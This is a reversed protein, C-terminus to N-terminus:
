PGGAGPAPTGAPPRCPRAPRRASWRASFSRRWPWTTSRSPTSPRGRATPSPKRGPRRSAPCSSSPSGPACRETGRPPCGAARSPAPTPTRAASAPSPRNPPAPSSAARTTRSPFCSAPRNRRASPRRLSSPGPTGPRPGGRQAPPADRAPRAATRPATPAAPPASPAPHEARAFPHDGGPFALAKKGGGGTREFFYVRKKSEKGFLGRRSYDRAVLGGTARMRREFASGPGMEHRRTGEELFRAIHERSEKTKTGRKGAGRFFVMAWLGRGGTSVSYTLSRATAGTKKPVNTREVDRVAKGAARLFAQVPRRLAKIERLKAKVLELGDIRIQLTV